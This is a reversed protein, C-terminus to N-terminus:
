PQTEKLLREIHAPPPDGSFDYGRALGNLRNGDDDLLTVCPSGHYVMSDSIWFKLVPLTDGKSIHRDKRLKNGKRNYCNFGYFRKDTRATAQTTM